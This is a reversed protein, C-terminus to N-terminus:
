PLSKSANNKLQMPGFCTDFADDENDCAIFSHGDPKFLLYSTHTTNIESVQQTCDKAHNSLTARHELKFFGHEDPQSSISYSVELQEEGSTFVAAGDEKFWYSEVCGNEDVISEWYGYLPHKVSRIDTALTEGTQMIVLICFLVFFRTQWM